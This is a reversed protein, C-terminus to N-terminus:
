ELRVVRTRDTRGGARLEVFYLGPPVHVGGADAGDWARSGRGAFAPEDALQRVHRGRLDYVDLRVPVSSPIEFSFVVAGRSPNPAPPALKLFGSLPADPLGVTTGGTRFDHDGAVRGEPTLWRSHPFHPSGTTLRTRMHYAVNQWLSAV